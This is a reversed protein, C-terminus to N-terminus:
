TKLLEKAHSIAAESSRDGLMRALEGIRKESDNHLESIAVHTSDETQQKEVLYHQKGNAAVQPLHTICFVQHGKGLDALERGVTVAIEGGVNADVEDFVLVPTTEVKALVAKLALMVRALEGSSAIKNLQMMEQGANASFLFSCSSNGSESLRGTRGVDIKFHAKKFGLRTLLEAVAQSLHVAAQVRKQTIVEAEKQLDTELKDAKQQLKTISGEVDAQIAIKHALAERRELISSVSGGYKRKLELWLNMRERIEEAAEEDFDCSRAADEYSEGLDSLEILLSEMRDGLGALEPDLAALERAQHLLPGLQDNIGNESNLGNYIESAGRIIEEASSLRTFDSELTEIGTESLQARDISDIQNQIFEVEDPSLREADRLQDMEAYIAKWQKYGRHYADLAQSNRAYLDLMELQKTEKFLKQPEGPGHFDIWAEGLARLNSMTTNRGNVTIKPMRKASLSRYLLLSGDECIPLELSELLANIIEPQGFYLGAEVELLEQGQRILTKDARTGSLLSLAGLLVSKGAGTEGTVVTFGESFELTTQSMLALNSIKLEQLM